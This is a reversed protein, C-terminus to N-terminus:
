EETKSGKNKHVLDKGKSKDPVYAKEQISNSDPVDQGSEYYKGSYNVRYPYKM